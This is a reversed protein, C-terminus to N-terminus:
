RENLFTKIEYYDIAESLNHIMAVNIGILKGESNFLGSGSAGPMISANHIIQLVEEDYIINNVIGQNYTHELGEGSNVTYVPQTIQIPKGLSTYSHKFPKNDKIELLALDKKKNQKLIIVEFSKGENTKIWQHGRSEAVCHAATLIKDKEIFVGSCSSLAYGKPNSPTPFPDSVHLTVTLIALYAYLNM